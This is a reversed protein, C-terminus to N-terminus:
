KKRTDDDEEEEQAADNNGGDQVADDKNGGGLGLSAMFDGGLATAARGTITAAPVAGPVFIAKSRLRDVSSKGPAFGLSPKNSGLASSAAGAASKAPSFMVLQNPARAALGVFSCVNVANESPSVLAITEKIQQTLPDFWRIHIANFNSMKVETVASKFSQDGTDCTRRRLAPRTADARLLAFTLIHPNHLPSQPPTSV